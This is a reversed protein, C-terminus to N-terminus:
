RQATPCGSLVSSIVEALRKVARTVVESMEEGLGLREARIGLVAADEIAGESRLYQLTTELPISHTTVLVPSAVGAAPVLVIDGPQAEEMYVADIILIRGPRRSVLVHTCNELGYVCELVEHGRRALERCVELGARDDERLETGVCVILRRERCLLRELLEKLGQTDLCLWLL